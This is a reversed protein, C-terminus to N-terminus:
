PQVEQDLGAFRERVVHTDVGLAAILEAAPDPRRLDLLASLVVGLGARRNKRADRIGTFIAKAAPTLRLRGCTRVAVPGATIAPAAGIAALDSIEPWLHFRASPLAARLAPLWSQPDEEPAVFAVEM